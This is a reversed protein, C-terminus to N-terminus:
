GSVVIGNYSYSNHSPSQAAQPPLNVNRRGSLAGGNFTQGHQRRGTRLIIEVKLEGTLSFGSEIVSALFAPKVTSLRTLLPSYSFCYYLILVRRRDRFATRRGKNQRGEWAKPRNNPM